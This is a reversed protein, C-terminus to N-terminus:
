ARLLALLTSETLGTKNLVIKLWCKRGFKSRLLSRPYTDTHGSARSPSVMVSLWSAGALLRWGKQKLHSLVIRQESAEDPSPEGAATASRSRQTIGSWYDIFGINNLSATM